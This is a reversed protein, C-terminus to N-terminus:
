FTFNRRAWEYGARGMPRAQSQDGLIKVIAEALARCNRPEVLFGTVDRRVVEPHSCLDFAVVPKGCAQAEVLPINFNEHLSATAYVDCAAYYYPLEEDQIYGALIISNNIKGRIMKLYYSYNAKGVILLRANPIVKKVFHFAEILLLIGKYPDLRGVFLIVPDKKLNHKSRVISGDINPLFVSSDIKNYVVKTNIINYEKRLNESLFNSVAIISDANSITKRWLFHFFNMYVREYFKPYVSAPTLGHAYYIYHIDYFKKTLYALWHIPYEHSIILDYKKLKAVYKKIKRIDLVFLLWYIRRWLLSKPTGLIELAVGELSLNGELSFVTVQNGQAAYEEAQQKAIRAVGDYGYFTPTLIAIKM